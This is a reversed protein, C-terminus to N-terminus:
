EEEVWSQRSLATWANQQNRSPVVVTKRIEADFRIAARIQAGIVRQDTKLCQVEFQGVTQTVYPNSYSPMVPPDLYGEVAGGDFRSTMGQEVETRAVVGLLANAAPEDMSAAVWLHDAVEEPFMLYSSSVHSRALKGEGDRVVYDALTVPDFSQALYNGRRYQVGFGDEFSSM